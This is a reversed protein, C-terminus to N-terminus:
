QAFTYTVTLKYFSGIGDTPARDQVDPGGSFRLAFNPTINAQVYPGLWKYLSASPLNGSPNSGLSEYHVGVSLPAGLKFGGNIWWHLFNNRNPADILQGAPGVVRGTRLATYRGMYFESEVRSTNLNSTINPVIGEMAMPFEGNSLLRGNLIGLQPTFTLRGDLTKINVGSGAETWLGFGGGTGFSPTTWIIGYVNWDIHDNITFAGSVTPYFGFFVDQNLSVKYTGRPQDAPAQAALPAMGIIGLCVYAQLAFLRKV